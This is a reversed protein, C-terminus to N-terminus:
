GELDQTRAHEQILYQTHALQHRVVQLMAPLVMHPQAMEQCEMIEVRTMIPGIGHVVRFERKVVMGVRYIRDNELAHDFMHLHAQGGRHLLATILGEYNIVVTMRGAEGDELRGLRGSGTM